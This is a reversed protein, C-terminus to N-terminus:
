HAASCLIYTPYGNRFVTRGNPPGPIKAGNQAFFFGPEFYVHDNQDLPMGGVIGMAVGAKYKTAQKLGANKLSLNAMNLGAEFGFQASAPVALIFILALTSYFIRM